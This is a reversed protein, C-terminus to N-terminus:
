NEEHYKRCACLKDLEHFIKIEKDEYELEGIYGGNHLVANELNVDSFLIDAHAATFKEDLSMQNINLYTFVDFQKEPITGNENKMSNYVKHLTFRQLTERDKFIPYKKGFQTYELYGIHEFRILDGYKNKLEYAISKNTIANYKLNTIQVNGKQELNIDYGLSIEEDTQRRLKKDLLINKSDIYLLYLSYIKIIDNLDNNLKNEEELKNEIERIKAEYLIKVEFERTDTSINLNKYPNIKENGFKMKNNIEEKRKLVLMKIQDYKKKIEEYNMYLTNNNSLIKKTILFDFRLQILEQIREIESAKSKYIFNLFENYRKELINETVNEGRAIQKFYDIYTSM